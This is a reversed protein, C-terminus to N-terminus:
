FKRSSKKVTVSDNRLLYDRQYAALLQNIQNLTTRLNVNDNGLLKLSINIQERPTFESYLEFQPYIEAVMAGQRQLMLDEERKIIANKPTTRINGIEQRVQSLYSGLQMRVPLLGTFNKHALGTDLMHHWKATMNGVTDNIGSIRNYFVQADKKEQLGCSSFIILFVFIAIAAIKQM